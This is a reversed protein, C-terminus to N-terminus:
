KESLNDKQRLLPVNNEIILESKSRGNTVVAGGLIIREHPKLIIKLAM